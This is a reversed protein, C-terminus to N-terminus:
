ICASLIKEKAHLIDQGSHTPIWGPALSHWFPHFLVVGSTGSSLIAAVYSFSSRSALLINATSLAKLTEVPDENIRYKINPIVSFEEIRNDEPTILVPVTIRDTIGHHSPSVLTPKSIIETHLHFEYPVNAETFIQSLSKMCDIYYSNPLMRQSDVVFLEGRRVHVAIIIPIITLCGIWPLPLTQLLLEPKSDILTGAFQVILLTNENADRLEKIIEESLDFCLLSTHITINTASPLNFLSNYRSIQTTDGENNELCKAGQYSAHELGSHIYGINYYKAVLYISIIRQLQAGAGDTLANNNYTLYLM